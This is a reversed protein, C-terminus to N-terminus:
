GCEMLTHLFANPTDLGKAKKSAATDWPANANLRIM